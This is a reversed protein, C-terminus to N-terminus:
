LHGIYNVEPKIDIGFKNKVAKQILAALDAIEKGTGDGSNIIVLAQNKHIGIKGFQKGKFGCQDILWGAPIKEETESVAYHPLTSYLSQLAHFQEKSIIPNMFFSGANGTIKPDPLKSERIGIVTNRINELTIEGNKLVAERLHQYDLQYDPIKHLKFTVHTVIYKGKLSTKFISQRYDYGCESNSFTHNSLTEIEITEVTDIVDKVEVGYAGINQVASAGVEGPILSLNEVGGWNQAVCYAVFDDWIVGSGVRVWVFENTENVKEISKIKSHLIVGEFDNLFLLNSGGGIHFSVNKKLIDSQLLRKLEEVTEYEALYRAKVDIGFTNYPKLSINEQINM